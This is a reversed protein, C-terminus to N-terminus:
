EKMTSVHMPTAMMAVAKSRSTELRIRTGTREADQQQM